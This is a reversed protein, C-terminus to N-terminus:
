ATEGAHPLNSRFAAGCGLPTSPARSFATARRKCASRRYLRAAALGGAHAHGPGAHHFCGHLPSCTKPTTECCFFPHWITQRPVVVFVFFYSPSPPSDEHPWKIPCLARPYLCPAQSPIASHRRCTGYFSHLYLQTLGAAVGNLRRWGISLAQILRTISKRLSDKVYM